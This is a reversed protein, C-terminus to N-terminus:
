QKREDKMRKCIEDFADYVVDLWRHRKEGFPVCEYDVDGPKERYAVVTYDLEDYVNERLSEIWELEEESTNEDVYNEVYYDIDKLTQDADFKHSKQQSYIELKEDWYGGSVSGNASPHFERCFIWNGFDGTVVMVGDTNIFKVNDYMTGPVHIWDVRLDDTITTDVVHKSWDRNTRNTM